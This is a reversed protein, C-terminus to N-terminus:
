LAYSKVKTTHDPEPIQKQLHKLKLKSTLFIHPLCLKQQNKANMYIVEPTVATCISNISLKYGLDETASIYNSVPFTLRTYFSKEPFHVIALENLGYRYLIM